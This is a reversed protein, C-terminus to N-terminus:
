YNELYKHLMEKAIEDIITDTERKSMGTARYDAEKFCKCSYAIAAQVSLGLILPNDDTARDFVEKVSNEFQREIEKNFSHYTDAQFTRNNNKYHNAITKSYVPKNNKKSDNGINDGLWIGFRAGLLAGLLTAVILFIFGLNNEMASIIIFGVFVGGALGGITCIGGLFEKM